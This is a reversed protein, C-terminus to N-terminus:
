EANERLFEWEIGKEKLYRMGEQELPELALGDFLKLKNALGPVRATFLAKELAWAVHGEIPLGGIHAVARRGGVPMAVGLESYRFEKLAKGAISRRVNAAVCHAQQFAAQASQPIPMPFGATNIADGMAFVNEHRPLQLRANVRFRGYRDLPSGLSQYLPLGRLGGAWVVADASISREGNLYVRGREIRSVRTSTLLHVGAEGLIRRTEDRLAQGWAHLIQPAFEILYIDARPRKSAAAPKDRNTGLLYSAESAIEIGTPGAGIIVVSNRARSKTRGSRMQRALAAVRDRLRVADDLSEFFSLEAGQTVPVSEPQGGLAIVLYEYKVDGKDTKVVNKRPDIGTIQAIKVHCARCLDHLRFRVHDPSLRGAFVEPFLPKFEFHSSRSILTVDLKEGLPWCSKLNQATYVGGFGGGLIVVKM